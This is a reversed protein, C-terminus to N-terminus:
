EGVKYDVKSKPKYYVVREWGIADLFKKGPARNGSLVDSLYQESIGLKAAFEKQTEGSQEILNKIDHRFAWPSSLAM